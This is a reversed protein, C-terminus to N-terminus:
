VSRPLKVSFSGEIGIQLIEPKYEVREPTILYGDNKYGLSGQEADMSRIISFFEDATTFERFRKTEVLLRNPDIGRLHNAITQAYGMRDGHSFKQITIDGLAHTQGLNVYSICDFTLYWVRARPATVNKRDDPIWEGDLVSGQFEKMPMRFVLNVEDPPAVMWVGTPSIVILKRIGDAKHTVTYSTNKNGVLGGYVMDRVKLNRAQVLPESDLFHRKRSLFIRNFYTILADRETETYLEETSRSIKFIVALASNLKAIGDKNLVEIEAEYSTRDEDVITLDLRMLNDYIPYSYRQKTRVRSPKFDPLEPINLERSISIVIPYEELEIRLTNTKATWKVTSDPYVTKRNGSNDLYDTTVSETVASKSIKAKADMSRKLLDFSRWGLTPIRFIREQRLAEDYQYGFTGFRAELEVPIGTLSQKAYEATIRNLQDVSIM